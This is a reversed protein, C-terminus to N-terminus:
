GSCMRPEVTVKISGEHAANFADVNEQITPLQAEDWLSLTLEVPQTSSSGTDGGSTKQGCGTLAAASLVMVASLLLATIKKKM